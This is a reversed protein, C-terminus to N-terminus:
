ITVLVGLRVIKLVVARTCFATELTPHLTSSSVSSGNCFHARTYVPGAHIHLKSSVTDTRTTVQEVPGSRESDFVKGRGRLGPGYARALVAGGSM